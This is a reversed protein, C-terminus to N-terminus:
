PRPDHPDLELEIYGLDGAVGEVVSFRTPNILLNVVFVLASLAGIRWDPWLLLLFTGVALSSLLANCLRHLWNPLYQNLVFPRRTGTPRDSM